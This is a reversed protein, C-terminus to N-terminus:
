KNREVIYEAFERVAGEGGKYESEFSVIQKVQLAADKPCGSLGCNKMCEIDSIDDGIFAIESMQINYKDAVKVMMALKNSVGQYVEKVNLEKARNSVINSERGTFIVPIINNNPLLEHLAYGDKINFAKMVEGNIGMYIKGDTLTGDVDTILIKIM